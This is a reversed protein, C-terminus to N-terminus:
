SALLGSARVSRRCSSIAPFRSCSYGIFFMGAGFGFQEATLGLDKNMTLAAFGVNTRDLYSIVYCAFIFPLIRRFVKALTRESAAYEEHSINRVPKTETM